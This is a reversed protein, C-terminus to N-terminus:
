KELAAMQTLYRRVIEQEVSGKERAPTPVRAILEVLGKDAVHLLVTPEDRSEEGREELHHEKAIKVLSNRAHERHRGAVERAENLLVQEARSWDAGEALSVVFLHLVYDDTFTENIIRETLLASNPVIVMRGTRDHAPGTELLKTAVLGTDIVDGRLGGIEVRDGVSFSRSGLRFLSGMVCSIWEKTAIVLAVAVAVLSLALTQLEKGWVLLLGFCLLFFILLRSQSRWRLRVDNSAWHARRIMRGLGLQLLSVCVVLVVTAVLDQTLSPESEFSLWDSGFVPKSDFLSSMFSALM